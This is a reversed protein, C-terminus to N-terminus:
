VQVLIREHDIQFVCELFRKYMRPRPFCNFMRKRLLLVNQVVKPDAVSLSSFSRMFVRDVLQLSPDIIVGALQHHNVMGLFIERELNFPLVIKEDRIEHHLQSQSGSARSM